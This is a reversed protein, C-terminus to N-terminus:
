GVKRASGKYLYAAVKPANELYLETLTVQDFQQEILQRINRNLHCGGAIRRQIPTLRNQWIQVDPENSLGHELFFFRGGPKLVRDIQAIAKEVEAISCLTFTSVVSDFSRDAMPLNEGSLVHHEVEISSAVIRKQAIAQIGPNSDVTAIKHIQEPYYQLNLGTGFGVELVDGTVEALTDRRHKELSPASLSLDILYPLIKQEYFGMRREANEIADHIQISGISFWIIAISDDVYSEAKLM